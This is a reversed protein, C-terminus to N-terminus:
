ICLDRNLKSLYINYQMNKKLIRAYSHYSAHTAIRIFFNVFIILIAGCTHSFLAFLAWVILLISQLKMIHYKSLVIKRIFRFKQFQQVNNDIGQLQSQTKKIAKENQLVPEPFVYVM